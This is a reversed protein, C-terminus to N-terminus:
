IHILSLYLEISSLTDQDYNVPTGDNNGIRGNLTRYSHPYYLKWDKYRVGHLENQKYYYYYAEHPSESPKAM